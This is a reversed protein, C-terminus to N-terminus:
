DWIFKNCPRIGKKNTCPYCRCDICTIPVYLKDGIMKCQNCPFYQKNIRNKHSCEKCKGKASNNNKNFIVKLDEAIKDFGM